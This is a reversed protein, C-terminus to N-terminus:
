KGAIERLLKSSTKQIINGEHGDGGGHRYAEPTCRVADTYSSENLHHNGTGTHNEQSTQVPLYVGTIGPNEEKDTGGVELEVKQNIDKTNDNLVFKVDRAEVVKHEAPIWIRYGKTARPYGVFIGEKTRAEFKDKGPTKNLVFAKTGFARINSLDVTTGTWKEFPIGGNLTSTPCRNRVYCATVVADAWFGTFREAYSKYLKFASLVVSKKGLLYVECWRTRDDIFTVFYKAGGISQTKLPGVVDSHVIRLLENCPGVSRLFPLSSM